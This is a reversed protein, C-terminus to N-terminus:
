NPLMIILIYLPLDKAKEKGNPSREYLHLPLSAMTKSILDVCRFVAAVQIASNVSVTHGAQGSLYSAWESDNQLAPM